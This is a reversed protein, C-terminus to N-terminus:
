RRRHKAMWADMLPLFANSPVVAAAPLYITAGSDPIFLVGESTAIIESFGEIQVTSQVVDSTAILETESLQLEVVKNERTVKISSNVWRMKHTLAEFLEYVGASAFAGGVFWSAPFVVALVVGFALLTLSLYVAYPRLKARHRLWADYSSEYYARDFVLRATANM